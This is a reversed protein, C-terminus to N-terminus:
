AVLVHPTGGLAAEVMVEDFGDVHGRELADGGLVLAARLRMGEVSSRAASLAINVPQFASRDPGHRVNKASASTSAVSTGDPSGSAAGLSTMKGPRLPAGGAPARASACAARANSWIAGPLTRTTTM